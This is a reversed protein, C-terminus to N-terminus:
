IRNSLGIRNQIHPAMIACLMHRQAKSDYIRRHAARVSPFATIFGDKRHSVM